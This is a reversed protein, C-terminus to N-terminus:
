LPCFDAVAAQRGDRSLRLHALAAALYDKVERRAVLNFLGLALGYDGAEMSRYAPFRRSADNLHSGSATNKVFVPPDSAKDYKGALTLFQLLPADASILQKSPTWEEGLTRASSAQWCYPRAWFTGSRALSGEGRVYLASSSDSIELEFGSVAM